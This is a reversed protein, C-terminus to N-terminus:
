DRSRLADIREQLRQRAAPWEQILMSYYASDRISCDAAIKHARRVGEYHAGLRAIAARSRHNRADTCLCVRHVQWAEFAHGFLLYKAEINCVSGQASAALWTHGIEVVDPRDYRQRRSGEPWRWREFNCLSTSGAVRGRYLVCFPYREGNLRARLAASVYAQAQAIGDPVLTFQYSDRSEAAAVALGEADAAALPRLQVDRGRLDIQGYM